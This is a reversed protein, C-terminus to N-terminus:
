ILIEGLHRKITAEKQYKTTIKAIEKKNWKKVEMEKIKKILENKNNPEYILGGKTEKLIQKVDGVKSSIVPTGCALSEFLVNPNGEKLSSIITYKSKNIIQAIEVPEKKGILKINNSLKRKNIEKQLTKKLPGEGIILHKTQPKIKQFAEIQVLHNKIKNLNGISCTYEKKEKKLYFLKKDYGNPIVQIPTKIKWKNIQKKLFNSVCIIKKAKKLTNITLIKLIINKQPITHIDSGRAYIINKKNNIKNGLYGYPLVFNSIIKDYEINEKKIFKNIQKAALQPIQSVPITHITTNKNASPEVPANKFLHINKNKWKPIIINIEEVHKGLEEFVTKIFREYGPSIILIKM